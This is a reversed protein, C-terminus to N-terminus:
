ANRNEKGWIKSRQRFKKRNRRELLIKKAIYKQQKEEIKIIEIQNRPKVKRLFFDNKKGDNDATIEEDSINWRQQNRKVKRLQRWWTRFHRHMSHQM